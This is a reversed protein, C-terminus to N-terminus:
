DKATALFKWHVTCKMPPCAALIGCLTKGNKKHAFLRASRIYARRRWLCYMVTQLDRDSRWRPLPDPMDDDTAANNADDSDGYVLEERQLLYTVWEEYSLDRDREIGFVGDGYPFCLLAFSSWFDVNFMDVAKNGTSIM